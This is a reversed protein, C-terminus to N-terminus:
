SEESPIDLDRLSVEIDMAGATVLATQRHLQMRVVKAQRNLTRLHVEDGPKLGNVWVTWRAFAEQSRQLEHRDQEYKERERNSAIAAERA